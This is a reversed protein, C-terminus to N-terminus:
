RRSGRPRSRRSSPRPPASAGARRPRARVAAPSRRSSRRMLVGCSPSPRTSTAQAEEESVVGEAVLASAYRERVSPQREIQAAMLPQTYAPEDQEQHGHRRYGIVIVFDEGFRPPLRRRAPGREARGGPDDANVHVIPIDFGKALDSSYRTSRGRGPRDFGVQNNAILHLTGGTTYGELSQLNLTEAVVGQGPFSADGHILRSARGDPRAPRRRRLPRDAGGASTRRGRSRGGGHSPNPVITVEIEGTPTVRTRLSAPPVQRRGSGGSRHRGSRPKEGGRVRPPDVRVPGDSPALANLRGRHAMGIVVEHAGDKAAQEIALDLMPVLVDLGELSFQKQGIYTRRLYQEFAETRALRQLLTRREEASPM